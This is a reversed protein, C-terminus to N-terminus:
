NKCLHTARHQSEGPSEDLPTAQLIGLAEHHVDWLPQHRARAELADRLNHQWWRTAPEHEHLPREDIADCAERAGQPTASTIFSCPPVQLWRFKIRVMAAAAKCTRVILGHLHHDGETQAVVLSNATARLSHRLEEIHAGADPLRRSARPCKPNRRLERKQRCCSCVMGWHRSQELSWIIYKYTASMWRWFPRARSAVLAGELLAADQSHPFLEPSFCEEHFRRLQLLQSMVEALTEYRWKAFTATFTKKLSQIRPDGRFSSVIHDRWTGNRWVSVLTRMHGLYTPWEETLKVAFQMLNAHVHCWGPVRIARPFLASTFDISRRVDQMRAGCLSEFFATAISPLEVLKIEIGQGTTLSGIKNLFYQLSELRPGTLFWTAWLLSLAKDVVSTGGFTLGMPPMVTRHIEEDHFVVDYAMGLIKHGSVPSADIYVHISRVRDLSRWKAWIRREILMSVADMRCHARGLTRASPHDYCSFQDEFSEQGGKLFELYDWADTLSDEFQTKQRLRGAFQLARFIQEAGFRKRLRAPVDGSGRQVTEVVDPCRLHAPVHENPRDDSVLQHENQCRRFKRFLQKMQANSPYRFLRGSGLSARKMAVCRFASREGHVLDAAEEEHLLVASTCCRCALFNNLSQAPPLLQSDALMANLSMVDALTNYLKAPVPIHGGLFYFRGMVRYTLVAISDAPCLVGAEDADIKATAAQADQLTWRLQVLGKVHAQGGDEVAFFSDALFCSHSFTATSRIHGDPDPVNGDVPWQMMAPQLTKTALLRLCALMSPALMRTALPLLPTM